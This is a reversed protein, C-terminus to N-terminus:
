KEAGTSKASQPPTAPLYTNTWGTEKSKETTVVQTRSPGDHDLIQIGTQKRLKHCDLSQEATATNAGDAIKTQYKVLDDRSKCLLAGAELRPWPERVAELEKPKVAPEAPQPTASPQELPRSFRSTGYQAEAVPATGVVLQLALVIGWWPLRAGAAESKQKRKTMCDM